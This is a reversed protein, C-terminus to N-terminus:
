DNNFEKSLSRLFAYSYIGSSCGSAFQIRLAYRGVSSVRVARLDNSIAGEQVKQKGSSPDYCKACPCKKQLDSLPYHNIQGDSWEITLTYNDKQRINKVGVPPQNM